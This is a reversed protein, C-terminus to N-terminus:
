NRVERWVDMGFGVLAVLLGGAAVWFPVPLWAVDIVAGWPTWFDIALAVGAAFLLGGAVYLRTIIRDLNM